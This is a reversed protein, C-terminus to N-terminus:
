RGAAGRDEPVQLCRLSVPPRQGALDVRAQLHRPSMPRRQGARAVQTQLCHLSMLRQQDGQVMQAQPDARVVRVSPTSRCRGSILSVHYVEVSGGLADALAASFM